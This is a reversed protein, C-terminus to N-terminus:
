DLNIANLQATAKTFFSKNAAPSAPSPHLIKEVRISPHTGYLQQLRSYAFDGIGILYQPQLQKCARHLFSDCHTYLCATAAAPLQNPTLNRIGRTHEALFLLPCYNLVLCHKFFKEATDYRQQFLSWLRKGSVEHRPCAFGLVPRKPHTHPPATVPQNIRLFDRVSAVDGFPIGTQAMGWPGPNIGVFLARKRATAYRQLYDRHAAWAYQLPHYVHTVPAPFTLQACQQAFARTDAIIARAIATTM